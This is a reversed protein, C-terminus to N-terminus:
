ALIVVVKAIMKRIVVSVRMTRTDIHGTYGALGGAERSIKQVFVRKHPFPPLVIINHLCKKEEKKDFKNFIIVCKQLKRM